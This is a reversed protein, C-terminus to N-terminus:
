QSVFTRTPCTKRRDGRPASQRISTISRTSSCRIRRLFCGCPPASFFVFLFYVNYAHQFWVDMSWRIGQVHYSQRPKNMRQRGANRRTIYKRNRHIVDYKGVIPGTVCAVCTTHIESHSLLPCCPSWMAAYVWFLKGPARRFRVASRKVAWYRCCRSFWDVHRKPYLSARMPRPVPM